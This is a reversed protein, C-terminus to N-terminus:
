GTPSTRALVTGVMYDVFADPQEFLPRHGSTELVVLDKDPAQVTPYWDAFPEARGDAEHVGQVFYVPVEFATATRRFDIEQLQPYLAAFTDMFAGLLHVQELLTYEPVIFNESFGAEGESNPSHDYPYVEHESSLATEYDLMRDYPPPGIAELESVLGDHGEARAWALTDAYFIEDTARQSVMQGTGVFAAFLEPRAQATLVGLTSGWSQGLLYIREQGFRDRLYETVAITDDVAAELTVTDTPDLQPYAKGNGRQDYTVVTFHEELEPLHRRMAGLESGGPGGAVFLLVPNDLSHGRIMMPVARGGIEPASLEAISGPVENGDADVIAATRAPRALGVSLAVLALTTLVAVGRRAYRGVRAAGGSPADVAGRRMARAWGAGLAAGLVLPLLSLLGHFGRGVVFAYIGYESTSIGDVTPGDFGLRVVEFVAGFAVPALLMAWRSRLALGAGVGVALSIVISWLAESTTLPGRPMWWGALLGWAAGLAAGVAVGVRRDAWAPGLLRRLDDAAVGARRRVAAATGGGTDTGTADSAGRDAPTPAPRPRTSTAM